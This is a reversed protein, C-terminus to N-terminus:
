LEQLHKPPGSMIQGITLDSRRFWRLREARLRERHRASPRARAVEAARAKAERRLESFRRRVSRAASCEERLLAREVDRTALRLRRRLLNTRAQEALDKADVESLGRKRSTQKRRLLLVWEARLSEWSTRRAGLLRSRIALAEALPVVPSTISVTRDIWEDARMHVFTRLGVEAWSTGQDRMVESFIRCFREPDDWVEGDSVCIARRAQAFVAQDKQAAVAQARVRAYMRLHGVRLQAQYTAGRANAITRVVTCRPSPSPLVATIRKEGHADIASMTPRREMFGLLATRVRLPLGTIACKRDHRALSKLSIRMRELAADVVSPSGLGKATPSVSMEDHAAPRMARSPRRCATPVGALGNSWESYHGLPASSSEVAFAEKQLVSPAM